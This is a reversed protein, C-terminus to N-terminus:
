RVLVMKKVGVYNGVSLRYFYIGGPLNSAEFRVENYGASQTGNVLTMVERGLIDYVKLEVHSVASLEYCIVTVPNFPNPYNQLLSYEVPIKNVESNAISKEREVSRINRGDKDM